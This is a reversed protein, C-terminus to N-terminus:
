VDGERKAGARNSALFEAFRLLTSGDVDHGILQNRCLIGQQLSRELGAVQPLSMGDLITSNLRSALPHRRHTDMLYAMPCSAIQDDGYALISYIEELAKKHAISQVEYPQLETVAYAQTEAFPRRARIMEIFKQCKLQFLLGQNKTLLGPYLDDVMTMATNVDGSLVADSIEKRRVMDSAQSVSSLHLSSALAFAEASQTYGNHVLYELVLPPSPDVVSPGGLSVTEVSKAFRQRAEEVTASIDFRFPRQGFNAEVVEGQTRLGLMPYLSGLLVDRFAIALRVGNKTYFVTNEIFNMCCGITDGTTFTPGYTRGDSKGQFAQGDDGHYGYSNGEWGPLRSLSATRNCFGIGIYGEKGRDIITIEFYYVGCSKPVCKNTRVAAADTHYKGPGKYAIRLGSETLELHSNKDKANFRVPVIPELEM